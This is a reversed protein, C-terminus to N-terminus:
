RGGVPPSKMLEQLGAQVDDLNMVPWVDIKAKLATFLPEAIVPLQGPERLDFVIFATRMGDQTTFYSAEPNLREIVSQLTTQMTGNRIAETAAETDMQVKMLTRM